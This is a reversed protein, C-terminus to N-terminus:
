PSTPDPELSPLLREFIARAAVEHGLRSPHNDTESLVLRRPEYTSYIDLLDLVDFGNERAAEAVQQHLDRYAYNKWDRSPILPFIVLLVKTGSEETLARITQFGAVVSKWKPRDPAHLYRIYDGSGFLLVELHMKGKHLLRLLHSHRWWVPKDFARHLSPQPDTEPDNLVYGIIIQQPNLSLGKYQLVTAEDRTNYGVVGLNLVEYTRNPTGHSENLLRGLVSPYTAEEPMGFGFTFSDGLALTRHIAPPSLTSPEGGRMGLHNTRIEMEEFVGRRGPILEYSLGPTSSERYLSTRTPHDALDRPPRMYEIPRALRFFAEGMALAFLTSFLLLGLNRRLGTTGFLRM